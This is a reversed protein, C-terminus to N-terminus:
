IISKRLIISDKPIGFDKCNGTMKDYKGNYYVKIQSNKMYPSSKKLDRFFELDVDGDSFIEINLDLFGLRIYHQIAANYAKGCAAVFITNEEEPTGKYFHEYAGIIDFIGEAIVLRTKERMVDIGASINYMKSTSELEDEDNVLSLNFYRRQQMGGIDRFIIHSSDSSIFGIANSFDFSSASPVYIGNKEFFRYADLVAKYKKQLEAADFAKGYRNSFYDISRKAADTTPDEHWLNRLRRSHTKTVGSKRLVKNAEAIDVTLDNSFIGLDRLVQTNLIGSTECKFCHFRFPPKMEIYFRAKSKDHRSDGCYPCRVHVEKHNTTQYSPKKNRLILDRIEAVIDKEDSM